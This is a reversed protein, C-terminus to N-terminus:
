MQSCDTRASSHDFYCGSRRDGSSRQPAKQHKGVSRLRQYSLLLWCVRSEGIGHQKSRDGSVSAAAQRTAADDQRLTIEVRTSGYGLLKDFAHRMVAQNPFTIVAGVMGALAAVGGLLLPWTSREDAQVRTVASWIAQAGHGLWSTAVFAILAATPAWVLILLIQLLGM